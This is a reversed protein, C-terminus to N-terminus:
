GGVSAEAEGDMMGGPGRALTVSALEEYRAPGRGLHSRYLAVRKIPVRGEPATRPALWGSLDTGRPDRARALTIHARFPQGQRLGPAMPALANGVAAALRALDGERDAIGYWLVRARRPGPFTGLGGADADWAGTRGVATEIAAVLRPVLAPETQGLFALTLHWGEPATWRLDHAAPDARWAAVARAIGDRLPEPLPVAVFCRWM